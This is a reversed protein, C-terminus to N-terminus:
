IEGDNDEQLHIERAILDFWRNMEYSEMEKKKNSKRKILM